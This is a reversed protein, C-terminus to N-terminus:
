SHWSFTNRKFFLPLSFGMVLISGYFLCIINMESIAVAVWFIGYCLGLIELLVLRHEKKFDYGEEIRKFLRGSTGFKPTRVFASQKRRYGEIVGQVMYFSIGTTMVFYTFVAPIFFLVAKVKNASSKWHGVFFILILLYIVSTGFLSLEEQFPLSILEAQRFYFVCPSTLLIAVVLLYVSSNMLHFTGILKAGLGVGSQWLAKVNKRLCEAAGKSWRFQQTRYADFTVPLEAPSGVDFLYEFKWGKIQARFSLDLDETLTDAQWGGASLICEKRWVGATGNFNIFGNGNKRGLHEVSFHTNLMVSQARTLLSHEENIHLWRTQVVGVKADQFQPITHKLFKPDPVFDADFIAIFEGKSLETGYALAGAKYGSRDSRQIHIFEFGSENENRIFDRILDSTEDNSDDLIQVELKEKPYELKSIAELLRKVVYKENYLPLQITVFPLDGAQNDVKPRAPKLALKMLILEHFVHVFLLMNVMVWFGFILDIM